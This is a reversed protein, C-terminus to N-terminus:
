TNRCPTSVQFNVKGDVSDTDTISAKACVGGGVMNGWLYPAAGKGVTQTYVAETNDAPRLAVLTLVTGRLTNLDSPNITLHGWHSGCLRSYELQLTGIVRSDIRVPQTSIIQSRGMSYLACGAHDPDIGDYASHYNIPPQSNVEFSFVTLIVLAISIVVLLPAVKGRDGITYTRWSRHGPGASATQGAAGSGSSVVLTCYVAAAIGLVIIAFGLERASGGITIGQVGTALAVSTVSFGVVTLFLTQAFSLQNSSNAPM